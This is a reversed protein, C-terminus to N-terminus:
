NIFPKASAQKDFITEIVATSKLEDLIKEAKTEREATILDERIKEQVEEFPTYSAAKKGTVKVVLLNNGSQITKSVQGVELQSLAERVDNNAISSPRTWDWHGGNEKLPGDSYRKVVDTFDAGEHLERVATYLVNTAAQQSGHKAISIQIQQWKIQEPQAFEERRRQYEALLNQRTLPTEQGMKGRIYETALQRNGFMERMTVLSMGQQQLVAELDATNAVKFQSKLRQIEEQFFEDLQQNIQDLQEKQLRAKVANVMLTQEIQAPLNKELLMEQAKRIEQPPYQKSAQALKGAFPELVHGALIPTGNVRAVVDTMALPKEPSYSALQLQSEYEDSADVVVAGAKRPPAPGVVPDAVDYRHKSCGVTLVVALCFLIRFM